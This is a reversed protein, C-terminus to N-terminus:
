RMLILKRTQVLNGFQLRYFYVGSDVGGANWEVQHRGAGFERDALVAVEKGLVTYAKLTVRGARPLVFTIQTSPNFPNPYNQELALVLPAEPGPSKVSVTTITVTGSLYNAALLNANADVIERAIPQDGFTIATSPAATGANVTFTVVAIERLGASFKQGAPLALAIGYRGQNQQLGNSNFAAGAADKGLSGLPNSLISTDFNLSFGLANEDGQSFLVLPISVSKGPAATVNSVSVVRTPSNVAVMFNASATGGKGDNAAITVTTSGLASATITLMSGSLSAGVIGGPNSSATYSLVDGDPDSFVTTLDRMFASGGLTLTQNSITGIVSPPQNVAITFIQNGSTGGGPAGNTVSFNRSGSTATSTITLNATLSTPSTVTMSNVTIDLGVNVQTVGAIFNTGTFIVELTQGIMAAAPAINALTPAPNNVTFFQNGSIGGGPPANSVSFNRPGTAANASIALNATLTMASMITTSNVTIDSGVNVTTVGNIFNTGTFVVNLTQLRNGSNPALNTLTPAPNAAPPTTVASSTAFNSLFNGAANEARVRYTYNTNPSVTNDSFSQVNAGVNALFVFAGTGVKREIRFRAEGNSKDTWTLDIRNSSIVNAAAPTPALFRFAGEQIWQLTINYSSSDVKWSTITGGGHSNQGPPTLGAPLLLVLSNAASNPLNSLDVRRSGRIGIELAVEKYTTDETVNLLLGGSSFNGHCINTTCGSPGFLTHVQTAYDVPTQGFGSGLFAGAIIVFSLWGAIQSSRCNSRFIQKRKM